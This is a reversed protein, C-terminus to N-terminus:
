PSSTCFLFINLIPVKSNEKKIYEEFLCICKNGITFKLERIM